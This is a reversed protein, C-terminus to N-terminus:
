HDLHRQSPVMPIRSGFPRCGRRRISPSRRPYLHQKQRQLGLHPLRDPWSPLGSSSRKRRRSSETSTNTLLVELALPFALLTLAWRHHYLHNVENFPFYYANSGAFYFDKGDLKFKEGEVTVFGKPVDAKINPRGHGRDGGRGPAAAATLALLSVILSRTLVM